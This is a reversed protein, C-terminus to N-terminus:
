TLRQEEQIADARRYLPLVLLNMILSLVVISLGPSGTALHAIHFIFEFFLKLPMILISNFIDSISM